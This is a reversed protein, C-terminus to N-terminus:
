NTGTITTTPDNLAKAACATYGFAVSRGLEAVSGLAPTVPSTGPVPAVSTTTTGPFGPGVTPATPAPTANPNNLLTLLKNQSTLINNEATVLATSQTIQDYQVQMIQTPLAVISKVVELPIMVVQNLESGKYICINRLDGDVFQLAIQKETFAARDINVSIVPSLNELPVPWVRRLLWPGPGGPDDKAYISLEYTARPRYM